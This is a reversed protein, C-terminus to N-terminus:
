EDRFPGQICGSVIDMEEADRSKTFFKLLSGKPFAEQLDTKVPTLTIVGNGTDAYAFAQGPMADMIPVRKRDDAHVIKM